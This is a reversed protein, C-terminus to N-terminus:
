LCRRKSGAMLIRVSDSKHKEWIRSKLFVEETQVLHHEYNPKTSKKYRGRLASSTDGNWVPKGALEKAGCANGQKRVVILHASEWLAM